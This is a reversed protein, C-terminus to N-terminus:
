GRLAGLGLHSPHPVFRRYVVVGPVGVWSLLFHVIGIGAAAQASLHAAVADGLKSMLDDWARPETGMFRKVKAYDKSPGGEVLYTALTFPAGAFGIVPMRGELERRLIRIAGLPGRLDREPEVPRLAAVEAATGVPNLIRPGEGPAFEVQIGMPILIQLIDSFVIAGDLGPLAKVATMAAAAALEPEACIELISHSKRLERYEPLFRGAQRMFWVPAQDVAERRAAQLLRFPASVVVSVVM